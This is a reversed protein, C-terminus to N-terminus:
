VQKHLDALMHYDKWSNRKITDGAYQMFCSLEYRAVTKLKGVYITKSPPPPFASIPVPANILFLM